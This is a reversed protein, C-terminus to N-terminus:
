RRRGKEAVAVIAEALLVHGADHEYLERHDLFGSAVRVQELTPAWTAAGPVEEGRRALQTRREAEEAAEDPDAFLDIASHVSGSAVGTEWAMYREEDEARLRAPNRNDALEGNSIASHDYVRLQIQGIQIPNAEVEWEPWTGLHVEAM